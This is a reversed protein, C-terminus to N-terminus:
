WSRLGLGSLAAIGPLWSHLRGCTLENQHDCTTGYGECDLVGMNFRDLLSTNVQESHQYKQHSRTSLVADLPSSQVHSLRATLDKSEASYGYLETWSPLYSRYKAEMKAEAGKGHRDEVTKGSPKEHKDVM